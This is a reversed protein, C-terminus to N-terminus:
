IIISLDFLLFIINVFRPLLFIFESFFIDDDLKVLLINNKFKSWYNLHLRLVLLKFWSSLSWKNVIEKKQVNFFAFSKIPLLLKMENRNNMRHVYFQEENTPFIFNVRIFLFYKHKKSDVTCNSSSESIQM